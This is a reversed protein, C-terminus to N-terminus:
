RTVLWGHGRPDEHVPDEYRLRRYWPYPNARLEPRMLDHLSFKRIASDSM